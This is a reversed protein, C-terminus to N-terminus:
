SLIYCLLFESFSLFNQINISNKFNMYHYFLEVFHEFHDLQKKFQNYSGAHAVRIPIVYNQYLLNFNLDIGTCLSHNFKGTGFLIIEEGFIKCIM